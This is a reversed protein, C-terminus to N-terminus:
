EEVEREVFERLVKILKEKTEAPVTESRIPSFFFFFPPPPSFAHANNSPLPPSVHPDDGVLIM